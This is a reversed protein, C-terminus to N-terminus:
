PFIGRIKKAKAIRDLGVVYAGLRMSIDKEKYCNWVENFAKIMIKELTRNIEEEDWTLAQINQVWEFYSVVVGGANALIDPVIIKGSKNLIRDAEITTPGNAGEVIIKAKIQPAIEKTIQNELAAPILVEVDATLVEENSIHTVDKANYDKLYTGDNQELFNNIDIIDLGTKCYLGGSVDSVAIIKCGENYLLKAATGGVNGMGQVSIRTALVPMGLRHLIEKTMFMVGRGTAEKRGLSGGVDVPKGTVVGPVAYGKFMSYTDM